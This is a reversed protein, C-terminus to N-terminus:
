KAMQKAFFQDLGSVAQTVYEDKWYLNFHNAGKVILRGKQGDIEDYFRIAGNASAAQDGYVVYTPLGTFMNTYDFISFSAVYPVSRLSLANKWRLHYGPKGELYYDRMGLPVARAEAIEQETVPTAHVTPASGKSYYANNGIAGGSLIRERLVKTNHGVQELLEDRTTLFPSVLALAKIRPDFAAEYANFGAGACIGLSYTKATDVADLTILFSVGNRIDDAIKYANLLLKEGESEGFGRPDFAMTLYGKESLRKAYLGATQEKIGTAPPTIIITPYKKGKTYDDPLYIDAAVKEGESLYIVHNIGTKLGDVALVASTALSLAVPILYKLTNM